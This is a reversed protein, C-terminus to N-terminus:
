RGIAESQQETVGESVDSKLSFAAFLYSCAVGHEIEAVESLLHILEERSEIKIEAM